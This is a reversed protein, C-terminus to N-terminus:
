VATRISNRALPPVVSQWPHPGLFKGARSTIAPSVAANFRPNRARTQFRIVMARRINGELTELNDRSAARAFGGRKGREISEFVPERATQRLDNIKEIRVYDHHASSSRLNRTDVLINRTM